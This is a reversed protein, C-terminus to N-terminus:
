LILPLTQPSWHLGGCPVMFSCLWLHLSSNNNATVHLPHVRTQSSLFVEWSCIVIWCAYLMLRECDDALSYTKNENDYSCYYYCKLWWFSFVFTNCFMMWGDCYCYDYYESYTITLLRGAAPPPLMYYGTAQQCKQKNNFTLRTGISLYIHCSYMNWDTACISWM